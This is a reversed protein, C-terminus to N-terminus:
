EDMSKEDQTNRGDGPDYWLAVPIMAVALIWFTLSQNKGISGETSIMRLVVGVIGLFAASLLIGIWNFLNMVGIVRGKQEIPPSQQIRVQIPVVFIGASAGLLIMLIRVSWEVMGASTLSALLTEPVVANLAPVEVANSEAGIMGCYGIGALSLVIGWAGRTVWKKGSGGAVVGVFLCGAAIGIGIGSTLLSTRTDSLRFVQRGLTNVAPQAVGGIFWFLSAVLIALMLSRDNRLLQRVDAPVGLNGPKLRLEPQSPVTRAIMLSTATGTVAIGVAFLSGIWLSRNFQDLAIGAAVTGFIIALFTTMQVSGNVPMLVDDRFLEPLAGYKSPGFIASHAGMLALVCILCLLRQDPTLSPMLMISLALLMIVIEAIKCGIIVHHKAFRDSLFGGAGSLLVFPLAFAALALPQRDPGSEAAVGVCTLLVLQKFYNDNFAGLFQTMLFGVFTPSALGNKETMMEHGNQIGTGNQRM